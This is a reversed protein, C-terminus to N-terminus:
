QFPIDRVRNEFDSPEGVAPLIELDVRKLPANQNIEIVGTMPLGAKVRQYAFNILTHVDHTLLIRQEHAAWGLVVPDDAQYIETDQVRIIDLNPLRKVIQRLMCGDFNEDALFRNM